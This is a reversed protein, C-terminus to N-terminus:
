QISLRKYLSMAVILVLSSRELRATRNRGSAIRGVLLLVRLLALFSLAIGVAEVGFSWSFIFPM